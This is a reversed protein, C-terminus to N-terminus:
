RARDAFRVGVALIRRTSSVQGCRRYVTMIFPDVVDRKGQRPSIRPMAPSTPAPRVSATCHEADPRPAPLSIKISPWGTLMMVTLLGNAVADGHHRFVAFSPITGTIATTLVRVNGAASLWNVPAILLVSSAASCCQISCDMRRNFILVEEGSSAIPRRVTAVLLLRNQGATQQLRANQDEVVVGRCRYRPSTHFKYVILWSTCCPM